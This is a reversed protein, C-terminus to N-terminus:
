DIAENPRLRRLLVLTAGTGGMRPPASAYALVDNRHALIREVLVRLVPLAPSHLGKGHVIRVCRRDHRRAEHLFDRLSREATVANMQHLDIEDQVAFQARRLQKLVNASVEPRRYQIPDAGDYGPGIAADTSRSAELAAREDLERQRPRPPPRPGQVPAEVPALPRVSGIADRFLAADDEAVPISPRLKRM